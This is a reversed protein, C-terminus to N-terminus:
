LLRAVLLGIVAPSVKKTTMHSLMEQIKPLCEIETGLGM